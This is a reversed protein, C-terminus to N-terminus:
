KGNGNMCEERRVSSPPDKVASGTQQNESFTLQKPTSDVAEPSNSSPETRSKKRPTEVKNPSFFSQIGVQGKNAGAKRKQPSISKSQGEEQKGGEAAPQPDEKPEEVPAKREGNAVKKAQAGKRSRTKQLLWM